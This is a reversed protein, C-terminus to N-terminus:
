AEPIEIGSRDAWQEWFDAVAESGSEGYGRINGISRHCSCDEDYCPDYTDFDYAVYQCKRPGETPFVSPNPIRIGGEKKQWDSVVKLDYSSVTADKGNTLLLDQAVHRATWTTALSYLERYTM